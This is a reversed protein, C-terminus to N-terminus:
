PWRICQTTAFSVCGFTVDQEHGEDARGVQAGRCTQCGGDTCSHWDDCAFDGGYGVNTQGEEHQQHCNLEGGDAAHFCIAGQDISHPCSPDVTTCSAGQTQCDRDVPNGAEACDFISAETGDCVRFGAVIPLDPLTASSGFTYLMGDAFGLAQCVM